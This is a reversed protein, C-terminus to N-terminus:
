AWLLASPKGGGDAKGLYHLDGAEQVEAQM